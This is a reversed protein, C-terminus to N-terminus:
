GNKLQCGGAATNNQLPESCNEILIDLTCSNEEILLKLSNWRAALAAMRTARCHNKRAIGVPSIQPSTPVKNWRETSRTVSSRASWGPSRNRSGAAPRRMVARYLAVFHSPTPVLLTMRATCLPSGTLMRSTGAMKRPVTSVWRHPPEAPRSPAASCIPPLMPQFTPVRSWRM